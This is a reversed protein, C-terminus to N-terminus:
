SRKLKGRVKRAFVLLKTFFSNFFRVNIYSLRRSFHIYPFVDVMRYLDPATNKLYTDFDKITRYALRRDKLKNCVLDMHTYFM